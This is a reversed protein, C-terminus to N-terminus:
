EGWFPWPRPPEGSICGLANMPVGLEGTSFKFVGFSGLGAAMANGDKAAVVGARWGEARRGRSDGSGVSRVEGWGVEGWVEVRRM